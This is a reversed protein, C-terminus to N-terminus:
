ATEPVYGTGDCEWHTTWPRGGMASSLAKVRLRWKPEGAKRTWFRGAGDVAWGSGDESIAGRSGDAGAWASAHGGEM